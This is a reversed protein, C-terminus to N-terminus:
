IQDEHEPEQISSRVEERVIYQPSNNICMYIRGIYEGILGLIILTIGGLILVIGILSSWGKPATSSIFYKAIVYLLYLAGAIASLVGAYSAMRLPKVSFSTFGNTWLGLLKKLTYGSAGSSRDRHNVSVNAIRKTSRLVLGIVYPFSGQYRKIEDIIYRRAAFYSSIFLDKPKGLMVQTMWSNVKSGFNRFGSHRKQDYKAYVVDYGEEIKDLLKEVENAPTQGDDDLSVIIDGTAYHYGAMLAAHQGFNKAMDAGIIDNGVNALQCIVEYTNDPSCDNILIIEHTYREQLKDMTARIEQVVAPLTKASRYCPIVFSVKKM